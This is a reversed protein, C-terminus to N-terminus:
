DGYNCVSWTETTKDAEATYWLASNNQNAVSASINVLFINRISKIIM